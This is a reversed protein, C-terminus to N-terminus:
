LVPALGVMDGVCQIYASDGNAIRHSIQEEERKGSWFVGNRAM